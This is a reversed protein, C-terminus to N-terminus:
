GALAHHSFTSGDGDNRAGRLLGAATPRGVNEQIAESRECHGAQNSKLVHQQLAMGRDRKGAEAIASRLYALEEGKAAAAGVVLNRKM